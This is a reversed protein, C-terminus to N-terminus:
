CVQRLSRSLETSGGAGEILRWRLGFGFGDMPILACDGVWGGGDMWENMRRLCDCGELVKQEFFFIHEWLEEEEEEGDQKILKESGDEAAEDIRFGAPM